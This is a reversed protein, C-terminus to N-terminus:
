SDPRHGSAVQCHLRLAALHPWHAGDPCNVHGHCPPLATNAHLPVWLYCEGPRLHWIHDHQSLVM